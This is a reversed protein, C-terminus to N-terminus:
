RGHPLASSPVEAGEPALVTVHFRRRLTMGQRRYLAIASANDAFVHLFPIEGRALIQKAVHSLLAQAFGRGRYAPDVCVATMETYAAPKSREGTMAVLRGDIRIGFFNGLEHTRPGFPGPKTLDALALMQPADAAGLKAIDAVGAADAPTGIMQDGMAAMVIQLGPPPAVPDPTFVAVPENARALSALAAWSEPSNDAIGALPGIPAPYRRARDGGEAISAQRTTLATWFPNDLPHPM